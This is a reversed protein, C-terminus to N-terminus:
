NSMHHQFGDFQHFHFWLCLTRLDYTGKVNQSKANKENQSIEEQSFWGGKKRPFFMGRLSLHLDM